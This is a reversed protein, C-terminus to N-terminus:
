SEVAFYYTAANSVILVQIFRCDGVCALEGNKRSILVVLKGTSNNQKLIRKSTDSKKLVLLNNAKLLFLYKITSPPKGCYFLIAKIYKTECNIFLGDLSLVRSFSFLDEKPANLQLIKECM